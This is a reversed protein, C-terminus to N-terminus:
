DTTLLPRLANAAGALAPRWSLTPSSLSYLRRAVSVPRAAQAFITWFAVLQASNEAVAASFSPLFL